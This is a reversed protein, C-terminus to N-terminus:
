MPDSLTNRKKLRWGYPKYCWPAKEIEEHKWQDSFFQYGQSPGLGRHGWKLPLYPVTEVAKQHLWKPVVDDLVKIKELELDM